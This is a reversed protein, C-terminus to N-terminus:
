VNCQCTDKGVIFSMRIKDDLICGMCVVKDAYRIIMVLKNVTVFRMQAIITM